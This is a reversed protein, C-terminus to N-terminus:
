IVSRVGKFSEEKALSSHGSGVLHNTRVFGRFSEEKTLSSHGSRVLHNTRIFEQKRVGCEASRVGWGTRSTSHFLARTAPSLIFGRRYPPFIDAFFPDFGAYAAPSLGVIM